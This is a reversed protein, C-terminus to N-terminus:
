KFSYIFADNKTLYAYSVAYIKQKEKVNATRAAIWKQAFTKDAEYVFTSKSKRGIVQRLNNFLISGKQINAM